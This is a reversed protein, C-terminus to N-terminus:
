DDTKTVQSTVKAAENSATNFGNNASSASATFLEKDEAKKFANDIKIIAEHISARFDGSEAIEDKIEEEEILNLIEDNM